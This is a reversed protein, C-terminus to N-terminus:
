IVTAKQSSTIVKTKLFEDPNLCVIVVKSVGRLAVLKTNIFQNVGFDGKNCYM